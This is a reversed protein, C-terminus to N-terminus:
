NLIQQLAALLQACESESGITIRLCNEIRPKNFYRVLIGESKLKATM